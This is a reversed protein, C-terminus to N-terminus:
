NLSIPFEFTSLVGNRIILFGQQPLYKFFTTGNQFVETGAASCVTMLMADLCNMGFFPEVVVAHKLYPDLLITRNTM